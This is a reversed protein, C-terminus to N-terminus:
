AAAAAHRALWGLVVQNFAAPDELMPIHGLDDFVHLDWDRRLQKLKEVARLPVLRDQRGHVILTPAAVRAVLRYFRNRLLNGALLSRGTQLYARDAEHNGHRARHAAVHLEVLDSPIRRPDAACLKLTRYVVAESSLRGASARMM